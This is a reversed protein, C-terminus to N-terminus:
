KVIIKQIRMENSEINRVRLIFLGTGLQNVALQSTLTQQIQLQGIANFVAIEYDAYNANKLRFYLNDQTPNPFVDMWETLAQLDETTTPTDGPTVKSFLPRMMIAGEFNTPFGQWAVGSTTTFFANEVGKPNNKDLGIPIEVSGVQQWSIFFDGAPIFLPNPITSGDEFLVYTSFGQLTDFANDTYFPRQLVAEFEPEEDLQDIYVKFNFLQSSVDTGVHPFHFQIARLTDDVNATYKVAIETGVNQAIINSEATGDDYAYYDTFVTQGVVTDNELALSSQSNKRIRYTMQMITSDPNLFNNEAAAVHTLRQPNSFTDRKVDNPTFSADTGTLFAFEPLAVADILENLVITGEDVSQTNPYHSRLAVVITDALEQDEFGVFQKRPMATYNRLTSVPVQTFAIDPYTNADSGDAELRVYDLHWLDIAGNRSSKNMFRFQFGDYLYTAEEIKFASFEFPSITDSGIGSEFGPFTEINIWTGEQDKFELLMQDSEEPKDGLGKKQLWFTLYVDDSASYGDLNIEVSTLTDATGFGGGYPRGGATLGDFTAVGVSPPDAALKTNVFTHNDVWNDANPYIGDYAFDDFFPLNISTSRLTSGKPLHQQRAEAEILVNNGEPAKEIIQAQLMQCSGFLFIFSYLLRM